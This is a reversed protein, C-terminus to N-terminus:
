GEWERTRRHPPLPPVNPASVACWVIIGAIATVILCMFLM